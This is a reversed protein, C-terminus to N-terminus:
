PTGAIQALLAAAQGIWLDPEWPDDPNPGRREAHEAVLQAALRRHRVGMNCACVHDPNDWSQYCHTCIRAAVLQEAPTM